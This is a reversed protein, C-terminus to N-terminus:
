LFDLAQVKEGFIATGVRVLTAGEEIAVVYDQSMGMSLEDMAVGPIALQRLQDALSALEQFFPRSLEPNENWPPITMLGRIAIGSLPAMARIADEVEEPEFGHKQPERGVNVQVLIPMPPSGAMRQHIDKALAVSDVSQIMDFLAVANKVKNRQLPGILHWQLPHGQLLIKKERAEQIRSEGFLTQGAEMAERIAAVPQTKSVAVLRVGSPDRGVRGAAARMRALIGALNDAIDTM